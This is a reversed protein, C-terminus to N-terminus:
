MATVLGVSHERLIAHALVLPVVCLMIAIFLSLVHCVFVLLLFIVIVVAHKVSRTFVFGWVETDDVVFGYLIVTLAVGMVLALARLPSFFAQLLMVVAAIFLYNYFFVEFNHAIRLKLESPPPLNIASADAFERWPRGSELMLQLRDRVSLSATPDLPETYITLSPTPACFAAGLAEKVNNGLTTM